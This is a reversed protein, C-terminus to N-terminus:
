PTTKIEFVTIMNLYIKQIAEVTESKGRYRFEIIIQLMLDPQHVLHDGFHTGIHTVHDNNIYRNM